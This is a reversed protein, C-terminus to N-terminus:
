DVDRRALMAVGFLRHWLSAPPFPPLLPFAPPVGADAASAAPRPAAAPVADGARAAPLALLCAAAVLRALRTRTPRRCTPSPSLAVPLDFRTMRLNRRRASRTRPLKPSACPRARAPRSTGACRGRGEM